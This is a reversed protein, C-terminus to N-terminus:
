HRVKELYTQLSAFHVNKVGFIYFFVPEEVKTGVNLGVFTKGPFYIPYLATQFEQSNGNKSIKASFKFVVTDM